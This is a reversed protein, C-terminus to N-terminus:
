RGGSSRLLHEYILDSMGLQNSEAMHEAHQTDLMGQYVREGQSPPTLGGPQITKRMANVM